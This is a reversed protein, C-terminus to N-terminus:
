QISIHYVSWIWNDDSMDKLDDREARPFVLHLPGFDGIGLPRGDRRLALVAGNRVLESVKVEIQYGDLAQLTLTEGTAGAAELVAALTPGEFIHVPGDKPFDASVKVADLQSLMKYDFSVADKFENDFYGFFKDTDPDYPGRNTRTVEGTVTLVAPGVAEDARVHRADGFVLATIVIVSLAAAALAAKFELREPRM